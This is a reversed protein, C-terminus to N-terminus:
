KAEPYLWGDEVTVECPVNVGRVGQDVGYTRSWGGDELAVKVQYGSWKGYFYGDKLDVKELSRCPSIVIPNPLIPTEKKLTLSENNWDYHVTCNADFDVLIAEDQVKINYLGQCLLITLPGSAVLVPCLKDDYIIIKAPSYTTTVNLNFNM